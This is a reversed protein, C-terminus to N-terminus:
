ELAPAPDEVGTRGIAAPLTLGARRPGRKAIAQWFRRWWPEHEAPAPLGFGMSWALEIDHQLIRERNRQRALDAKYVLSELLPSYM